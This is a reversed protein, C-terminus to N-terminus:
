MVNARVVLRLDQLPRLCLALHAMEQSHLPIEKKTHSNFLPRRTRQSCYPIDLVAHPSIYLLVRSNQCTSPRHAAFPLSVTVSHFPSLAERNSRSSVRESKIQWESFVCDGTMGPAPQQAAGGGLRGGATHWWCARARVCTCVCVRVALRIGDLDTQM